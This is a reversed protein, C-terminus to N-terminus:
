ALIERWKKIKETVELGYSRSGNYREGVKVWDGYTNWYSVLLDAGVKCNYYPKWCGGLADARDQFEWWTLQMPGVGQMGKGAKRGEKYRLYKTKNVKGWGSAWGSAGGDHGFVNLGGYSEQELFACMIHFPLGADDAAKMAPYPIKIGNQHAVIMKQLKNM